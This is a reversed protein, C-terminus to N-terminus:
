WRNRVVARAPIPPAPVVLPRRVEPGPAALPGPAVPKDLAPIGEKLAIGVHYRLRGNPAISAVATRAVRGEVSSPSFGGEFAVSVQSGPKLAEDCEALLGNASINVLTAELGHPSIRLGTISPVEAAPLRVAKRTMLAAASATDGWPHRQAPSVVDRFRARHALSM